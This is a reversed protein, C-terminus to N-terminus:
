ALEDVRQTDLAGAPVRLLYGSPQTVILDEPVALARRIAFVCIAIQNAATAPPNDGWVASALQTTPGTRNAQLLLRALTTLRRQATIRVPRGGVWAQLPGLLKFEIPRAM